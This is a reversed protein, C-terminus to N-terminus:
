MPSLPYTVGRRKADLARFRRMDADICKRVHRRAEDVDEQVFADRPLLAELNGDVVQRGVAGDPRELLKQALCNRLIVEAFKLVYVGCDYGNEQRPTNVGVARVREVDYTPAKHEDEDVGAADDAQSNQWELRLFRLLAVVANTGAGDLRPAKVVSVCVRLNRVIIKRNHYAGLPDLVAICSCADEEKHTCLRFTLATLLVLCFEWCALRVEDEHGEM